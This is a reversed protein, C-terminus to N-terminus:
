KEDKFNISAVVREIISAAYIDEEQHIFLVVYCAQDDLIFYFEYDFKNKQQTLENKGVFSGYVKLTEKGALTQPQNKVILNKAGAKEILKMSQDSIFQLFKLGVEDESPNEGLAGSLALQKVADGVAVSNVAIHFHDLMSGYVFADNPSIGGKNTQPATLSDIAAVKKRVLVRPTEIYIPPFGYSSSVWEGEALDKTPHGVVSDKVYGYGYHWIAAGASLFLVGVFIAAALLIRRRQKKKEQAERYEEQQLLEEESPEPLAEKTKTVIEKISERDAEAVSTQPKSKAFKVLDATQLIRKFQILTNEELKLDGSDKLLELKSILQDTTSELASIHVDEEIYSRVIDTLESYYKKYEDQILYRSNELRNLEIMARDYAPLLAEKEEVSLPKKRILFWYLLFALLLFALIVGLVILWFKSNSKEVQRLPKIDFMKQKVTDVPVTSVHVQVSDTFYPQENIAIRQKPIIYIGSDFQTLAYTKQLIFRNSKRTTDTPYAEVNELPSFTQDEPFFVLDTSDTDVTIQYKIQEGIKIITTDLTSSVRPQQQSFGHFSM